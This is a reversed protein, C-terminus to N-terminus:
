MVKLFNLNGDVNETFVGSCLSAPSGILFGSLDSSESSSATWGVAVCVM